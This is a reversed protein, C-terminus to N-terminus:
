VYTYFSKMDHKINFALKQEYNRKSNRIESTAQILAEKYITYDEESETHRYTKWMM